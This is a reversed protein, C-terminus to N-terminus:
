QIRFPVRMSYRARVAEGNKMPPEFVCQEAATTAAAVFERATSEAVREVSCNGQQDIIIVLVVEGQVRARKLEAPYVPPVTKIRRPPRDLDAVDFIAMEGAADPQVGFGEFSFAGALADGIGPNLALEMQSLSLPPPPQQMPPPPEDVQEQQPPPPEPPPPPPPPLVVDVSRLETTPGGDGSIYQTFPLILFVALACAVMAVITRWRGGSEVPQFRPLAPAPAGATSTGPDASM